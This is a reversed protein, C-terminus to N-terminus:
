APVKRSAEADKLSQQHLQIKSQLAEWTDPLNMVAPPLQGQKQKQHQCALQFHELCQGERLVEDATLLRQHFRREVTAYWEVAYRPVKKPLSAKNVLVGSITTDGPGYVQIIDVGPVASLIHRESSKDSAVFFPSRSLALLLKWTCAACKTLM